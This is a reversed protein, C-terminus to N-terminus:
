CAANTIRHELLKGAREVLKNYIQPALAHGDPGRLFREIQEVVDQCTCTLLSKKCGPCNM